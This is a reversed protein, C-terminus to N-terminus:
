PHELVGVIGGGYSSAEAKPGHAAIVAFAVGMAFALAAIYKGLM